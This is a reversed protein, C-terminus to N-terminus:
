QEPFKQGFQNRWINCAKHVRDQSIASKADIILQKFAEEFNKRQTEDLKEILNDKPTVPCYIATNFWFGFTEAIKVATLYFAMDDNKHPQYNQTVWVTIAIGSPMKKARAHAWAKFYKVLRVLQGKKDRNKEFWDCVEKPDSELWKNKTALYPHRDNPTKYYVPLDIDYEGKYLVRICKERHQASEETHGKVAEYVHNQLTFPEISPKTLFYLGLDVDYTGDKGVIMTDMKYSGQIYFKPILISAHQRFYEVIRRQLAMRSAILRKRRGPSITITQEFALFAHHASAM